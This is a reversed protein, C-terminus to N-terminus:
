GYLKAVATINDNGHGADRAAGFIEAVAASLGVGKALGRFYGLDKCVLDIPFMPAHKGAAILGGTAKAVPSTVVLDGLVGMASDPAIGADSLTALLEAVAAVQTAFLTNAALKLLAGHGVPGVHHAAKCFRALVPAARDYASADGGVLAVLQGADAHPRTGMVPAEVFALGRASASEALARAREPTITSCEIALAASPMAPLAEAWVAESAGDDTLMSLVVDVGAVADTPTAAVRAGATGLDKARAATRNYVTLPHGAAHLRQAMRVGMAGLGLIAVHQMRITIRQTLQCLFVM